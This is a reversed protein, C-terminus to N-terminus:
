PVISFKSILRGWGNTALRFGAQEAAGGRLVTKVQHQPERRAPGTRQALQAPEDLVAV